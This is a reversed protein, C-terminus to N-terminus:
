SLYKLIALKILEEQDKENLSKIAKIEKYHPWGDEDIKNFQYFGFPSLVKCVAVHIVDMKEHREYKKLGFNLEQIGILYLVGKLNFDENFQKELKTILLSWNKELDDM